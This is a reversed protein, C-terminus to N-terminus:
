LGNAKPRTKPNTYIAAFLSLVFPVFLYYYDQVIGINLVFAFFSYFILPGCGRIIKWWIFWYFALLAILSIAGYEIAFYLYANIVAGREYNSMLWGPGNGLLLAVVNGEDYESKLLEVGYETRESRDIASVDTAEYGVSYKALFISGFEDDIDNIYVM